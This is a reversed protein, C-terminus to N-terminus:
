LSAQQQQRQRQRQRHRHKRESWKLCCRTARVREGGVFSCSVRIFSSSILISKFPLLFHKQVCAFHWFFVIYEFRVCGFFWLSHNHATGANSSLSLSFFFCYQIRWLISAEIHIWNNLIKWMPFEIKSKRESVWKHMSYFSVCVWVFRM